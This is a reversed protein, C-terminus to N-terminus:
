THMDSKYMFSIISWFTYPALTMKIFEIKNNFVSSIKDPIKNNKSESCCQLLHVLEIKDEQIDSLSESNIFKLFVDSDTGIIGVYMM